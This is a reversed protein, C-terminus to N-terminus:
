GMSWTDRDHRYRTTTRQLDADVDEHRGPLRQRSRRRCRHLVAYYSSVPYNLPPLFSLLHPIPLVLQTTPTSLQPYRTRIRRQASPSIHAAFDAPSLLSVHGGRTQAINPPQATPVRCSEM